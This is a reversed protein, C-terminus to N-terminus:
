LTMEAKKYVNLYELLLGAQNPHYKDAKLKASIHGVSYADWKKFMKLKFSESKLM